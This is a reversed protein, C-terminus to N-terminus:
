KPSAGIPLKQHTLLDTLGIVAAVGLRVRRLERAQVSGIQQDLRAKRICSVRGCMAASRQVLGNSPDPTIVPMPLRQKGDTDSTLPVVLVTEAKADRGRDSSSIVLCPRLKGDGGERDARRILINGPEFQDSSDPM